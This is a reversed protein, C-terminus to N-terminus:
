KTLFSLNLSTLNSAFNQVALIHHLWFEYLSSLEKDITSIHISCQILLRGTSLYQHCLLFHVLKLSPLGPNWGWAKYKEFQTNKIFVLDRLFMRMWLLEPLLTSRMPNIIYLRFLFM